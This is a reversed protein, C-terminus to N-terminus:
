RGPASWVGAAQLLGRTYGLAFAMFRERGEDIESVPVHDPCLPGSYGGRQYARIAELMDVDGEDPFVEQFDLYGGRINRFHVMFIRGTAAFEEIVSIMHEAPRAFMEAVTGQCFNLGHNRSSSLALFRRLGDVSGVVHEIGNLGGIPYAPDHPHCALRVGAKDAAQVLGEVLFEIADWGAQETVPPVDRAMKQGCLMVSASGGEEQHGPYGVGWYSHKCDDESSYEAYTFGSNMAGGRGPKLGTRTIGVMQVNYKLCSIGADAAKQINDALTNRQRRASDLDVLSDLLISGVDLAFVDLKLGFGEVWKRYEGLKVADWAGVGNEASVLETGRNDLVVSQVGLQTSLRLRREDPNLLQESIYM